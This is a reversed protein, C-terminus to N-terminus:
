APGRGNPLRSTFSTTSTPPPRPCSARAGVKSRFIFIVAGLICLAAWLDDLKLPERLYLIAFPVFITLTFTFAHKVPSDICIMAQGALM